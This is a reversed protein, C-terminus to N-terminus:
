TWYNPKFEGTYNGSSDLEPTIKYGRAELDTVIKNVKHNEVFSFMSGRSTAMLSEM